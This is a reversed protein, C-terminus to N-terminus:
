DYLINMVIIGLIYFVQRDYACDTNGSVTTDATDSIVWDFRSQTRLRIDQWDNSGVYSCDANLDGMIVVDQLNCYWRVKSM